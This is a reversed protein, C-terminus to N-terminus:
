LIRSGTRTSPRRATTRTRICPLRRDTWRRRRRAAWSGAAGTVTGGDPVRGDQEKGGPPYTVAGNADVTCGNAGADELAAELKRKAVAMDFAFGNLAASVLGCESQTYHFNKSLEGLARLAAEAAEGKLQNRIGACIQNDITDKAATAMAATGRYGDAANEFEAPKFAKLTALDMGRIM